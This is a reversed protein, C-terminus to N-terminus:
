IADKYDKSDKLSKMYRIVRKKSLPFHTDSISGRAGCYAKCTGGRDDLRIDDGDIGITGSCENVKFALQGIESYIAKGFLGCSHGNSFDVHVKFYIANKAVRVIELVDESRYKEGSVDENNFQTKYVGELRAILKNAESDDGPTKLAEIIKKEEEDVRAKMALLSKKRADYKERLCRGADVANDCALIASQPFSADDDKLPQHGATEAEAAIAILDADQKQFYEDQCWTTWGPAKQTLCAKNEALPKESFRKMEGEYPAKGTCYNMCPQSFASFKLSSGDLKAQVSCGYSNPAFKANLGSAGTPTLTVAQGKVELRGNQSCRDHPGSQTSLTYDCFGDGCRRITLRSVNEKAQDVWTGLLEDYAAHAAISAFVLSCALINRKRM